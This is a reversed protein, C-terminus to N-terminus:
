EPIEKGTDRLISPLAVSSLPLPLFAKRKSDRGHWVFFNGSNIITGNNSFYKEICAGKKHITRETIVM